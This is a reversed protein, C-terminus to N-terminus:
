DLNKMINMKAERVLLRDNCFKLLERTCRSEATFGNKNKRIYKYYNVISPWFITTNIYSINKVGGTQNIDKLKLSESKNIWSDSKKNKERFLDILYKQFEEKTFLGREGERLGYDTFCRFMMALSQVPTNGFSTEGTIKAIEKIARIAANVNEKRYKGFFGNGEGEKIGQISSIKLWNESGDIGEQQMITGYNIQHEKLYNFLYVADKRGARYNSAFKQQENQSSRNGADTSHTEAELAIYDKQTLGEKHFTVEMKVLSDEGKRALLKMWIRNNGIYKVLIYTGEKRPHPRLMASLSQADSMKYGKPNGDQDKENLNFRCQKDGTDRVWYPRDCGGKSEESSFIYTIPVALTHTLGYDKESMNKLFDDIHQVNSYNSDDKWSPFLKSNLFDTEKYKEHFLSFNHVLDGYPVEQPLTLLKIDIHKM